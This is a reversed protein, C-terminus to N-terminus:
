QKIPKNTQYELVDGKDVFSKISLYVPCALMDAPPNARGLLWSLLDPIEERLLSETKLLDEDSLTPVNIRAWNGVILDLEKMGRQQARYLVRKERESRVLDTDM